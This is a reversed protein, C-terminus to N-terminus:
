NAHWFSAAAGGREQWFRASRWNTVGAQTSLHVPIRPPAIRRAIELIGPDSIILGDVELRALGEIYAPVQRLHRNHAFINMAVYVKVGARHATQVGAALEEMSFGPPTYARLNLGAGGVYVADAGYHVAM